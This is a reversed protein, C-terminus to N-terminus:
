YKPKAIKLADEFKIREFIELNGGLTANYIKRGASNYIRNSIRYSIENGDLDALHWKQGKFYDPHFHNEDDKIHIQEENPKGTQKFNHDAGIIFVRKFGMIYSIQLAVQTVTYGEFIPENFTQTFGFEGGPQFLLFNENKMSVKNYPLFVPLNLNAYISESQEIVLQNVSVIYSLPLKIKDFLLYIKNLGILNYNNLLSLDMKNLSPGNCIIFCDEDLHKNAYKLLKIRDNNFWNIYTNNNRKEFSIGKEMDKLFWNIYYPDSNIFKYTDYLFKLQQKLKKFYNFM